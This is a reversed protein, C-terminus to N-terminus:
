PKEPVSPGATKWMMLFGRPLYVSDGDVRFQFLGPRRESLSDGVFVAEGPSRQSQYRVGVPRTPQLFSAVYEVQADFSGRKGDFELTQFHLGLIFTPRKGHIREMRVIRGKVRAGRPVWVVGGKKVDKSVRATVPDGVLSKSSHIEGELELALSLGAPLRIERVPERAAPATVPPDGFSLYSEGTFQRCDSFRVRNRSENGALDTMLLESSQPLLFATDGIMVRGYEITNAAASLGLDPPIDDAQVELRVLDLTAADVWISGHYSVTAEKPPVRIRYGSSPLPVRYDYRVTKRGERDREGAYSFVPGHGLFISYAHLGFNGNGIAGGQVFDFIDAEQFKEEGPWSFLEKRGILAVELRLIDVLEFRRAPALRRSREVTQLCTYNPLRKLNEEMHVKIRALLLTEPSLEQSAPWSAACLALGCCARALSM